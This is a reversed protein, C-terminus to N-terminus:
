YPWACGVLQPVDAEYAAHAEATNTGPLFITPGMPASIDQLAVFCTLLPAREQHPNDPHIPQRPAGPESVLASLEYLRHPSVLGTRGAPAASALGLSAASQGCPQGFSPACGPAHDTASLPGHLAPQGLDSASTVPRPGLWRPKWMAYRTADEGLTSGLVAHLLTTSAGGGGGGGGGGDGGGDGGDGAGRSGVLLERLAMQVGRNGELPLLLDCRDAKLLVDAFYPRWDDGSEVAALAAARRELIEARLSAATSTRLVGDLRVVGEQSLASVSMAKLSPPKSGSRGKSKKKRAAAPKAKAKKGSVRATAGDEPPTLEALPAALVALEPTAKALLAAEFKARDVLDDIM